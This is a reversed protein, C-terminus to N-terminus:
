RESINFVSQNLFPVQSLPIVQEITYSLMPLITYQEPPTDEESKMTIIIKTSEGPELNPTSIQSKLVTIKGGSYNGDISKIKIDKLRVKQSM